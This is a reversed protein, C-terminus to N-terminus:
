VFVMQFLVGIFVATLFLISLIQFIRKRDEQYRILIFLALGSNTILGALLSGFSLAHISYLGALVVTAACNPIFGFIAAIVPQLFSESLLMKSLQQEGICGILWSLVFSTIFIFVFIKVSRIFASLWMPYEPYCCPCSSANELDEEFEEEEEADDLEEFELIKQKKYVFYDVIYGVGVAIIFKCIMLAALAPYLKPNSLLIPIAEDSTAIMVAILTGATINRQVFLIAALVGFGCQPILGVVAGVFPGYKQLSLFIKDDQNNKREWYELLIYTMYLLPLMLWTDHWTDQLLHFLDEM